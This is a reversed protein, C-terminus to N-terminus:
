LPNDESETAGLVADVAKRGAEDKAQRREANRRRGEDMAAALEEGGVLDLTQTFLSFYRGLAELAPLKPHM